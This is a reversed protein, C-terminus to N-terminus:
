LGPRYRFSDGHAAVRGFLAAPFHAPILLHDYEACESLIRRRTAIAAEPDICSSTSCNPYVIQLPTHICDGTFLGTIGRSSARILINGESHGPADEVRLADDVIFGEDILTALGAEVCPLVSDEFVGDYRHSRSDPGTMPNWYDYERRAFLYRANPFTPVWHGNVLRTNWGVHDAHLHTCMVFDIDEARLGKDALRSLWPTNLENGV